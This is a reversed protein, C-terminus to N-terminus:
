SREIRPAGGASGALSRRLTERLEAVDVSIADDPSSELLRLASTWLKRAGNPVGIEAKHFGVAAQVLAQLLRREDGEAEAWLREWLEHAEHFHGANFEDVAHRFVPEFEM